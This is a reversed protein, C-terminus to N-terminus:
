LAREAITELPLHGMLRQEAMAVYEAQLEIGLGERGLLKAAVITTGSGAFPDLVLDGPRSGITILYSMLKLPKVTPHTIRGGKHKESQKPKPVILFPFTERM